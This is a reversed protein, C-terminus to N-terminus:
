DPLTKGPNLIRNPDLAAKIARMVEVAVPDKHRRMSALKSIGVGHEASFTGGLEQALADIAARIEASLAPDDRSPYATYHINGDGLHAVVVEECDPDIAAIRIRIERLYDAVRDIPLAVDADVIPEKWFTAEAAGERRAWMERRQAENQAIVADVVLGAELWEALVAEFQADLGDNGTAALEVLLNIEHMEAFPPRCDKHTALLRLMLSRPMLEFAVLARGSRDQLENLLRPADDLSALAVMATVRRTPNPHLKMVAATIVGLQGEAGIFLDRLDFGSNNKHLAQMLDMVRGDALVVEIGLCLERTNGYRLVNAGGANTSLVGGILASGSAGFSLPFILGHDQAAADLNAVIVGAEVVAVRAETRIERIRNLREVSLMIAGETGRGAGVLGTNGSIPVVPVHRANALQMVAVVQDRDAPRVVALPAGHYHGTWDSTWRAMDTGTLVQAPGVIAALAGILDGTDM